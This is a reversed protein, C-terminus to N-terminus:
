ILCNAKLVTGISGPVPRLSKATRNSGFSKKYYEFAPIAGFHVYIADDELIREKVHSFVPQIEEHFRLKMLDQPYNKVLPFFIILILIIGAIKKAIFSGKLFFALGEAVFLYIFPVYFLLLRGEFPYLRLGSALFVLALPLMFLLGLLRNRKLVAYSGILFLFSGALPHIGAPYEFMRKFASGLWGFMNLSFPMFSHAWDEQLHVNDQAHRLSLFYLLGLSIIWFLCTLLFSNFEKYRKKYLYDASLCIAAGALVFVGPFSFWIVAGGLIGLHINRNLAPTGKIYHAIALMLILVCLIDSAYPKFESTYRIFSRSFFLLGLAIFTTKYDVAAMLLKYFLVFSLIGATLPLLRLVFDSEGFLGALFKVLWLFGVPAAVNYDLPGFFEGYSKNVVNLALAAEDHWLSRQFRFQALHFLIGAAALSVLLIKELYVKQSKILHM